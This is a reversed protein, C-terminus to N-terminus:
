SKRKGLNGLRWRSRPVDDDDEDYDADADPDGGGQYDTRLVQTPGLDIPLVATPEIDPSTTPSSGTTASSTATSSTATSDTNLDPNPNPSDPASNATPPEHQHHRAAEVLRATRAEPAARDGLAQAAQQRAQGKARAEAQRVALESQRRQEADAQAQRREEEERLKAAQRDAEARRQEEAKQQERRAREEAARRAREQREQERRQEEERQRAEQEAKLREAEKEAEAREAALRAEQERREAERAERLAKERAEAEAVERASLPLLKELHDEIIATIVGAADTADVVLYREPEAAARSRFVERVRAHFEAPEAELRDPADSRSQAREWAVAPDLDLLIVLDPRLGETAFESLAIVDAAPLGRGGSQYAISSDVHRDTLVIAGRKLAPRVVKDIHDARDAAFLLAEARASVPERDKTHLLIERLRAGLVTAGPERTTVVDFGRKRLWGALADIQTSKGAGDGGEIAIFWGPLARARSQSASARRGATAASLRSLRSRM